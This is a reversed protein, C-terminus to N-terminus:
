QVVLTKHTMRAHVSCHFMYTGAKSPASFVGSSGGPVQKSDFSRGDDSSVTHLPADKNVVTITAGRAVTLTDVVRRRSM